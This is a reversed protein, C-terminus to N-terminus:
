RYVMSFGALPLAVVAAAAAAAAVPGGARFGHTRRTTSCTVLGVSSFIGRFMLIEEGVFLLLFSLVVAVVVVVVVVFPGM